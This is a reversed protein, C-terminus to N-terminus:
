GSRRPPRRSRPRRCRSASRRRRRGSSAASPSRGAPPAAPRRRRRAPRPQARPPERWPAEDVSIHLRGVDEDRGTGPHFPRIVDVEGIEPDGLVRPRRPQGLRSQEDASGLVGRGLLDLALLEVAPGVDVREAADRVLREGPRRRVLLLRLDRHHVRVEELGRRLERLPTGVEARRDVLHDRLRHRFGPVVPVRSRRLEREGEPLGDAGVCGHPGLRDEGAAGEGSRGSRGLQRGLLRGLRLRPRRLWLRRRLRCGSAAAPAEFRRLSTTPPPMRATMTAAPTRMGRSASEPPFDEDGWVAAAVDVPAM